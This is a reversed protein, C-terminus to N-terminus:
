FPPPCWSIFCQSHSGAFGLVSLSVYRCLICVDSDEFFMFSIVNSPMSSLGSIKLSSSVLYHGLINSSGLASRSILCCVLLPPFFRLPYPFHFNLYLQLSFKHVPFHTPLFSGSCLGSLYLSLLCLCLQSVHLGSCTENHRAPALLVPSSSGRLPSHRCSSSAAGRAPSLRLDLSPLLGLRGM